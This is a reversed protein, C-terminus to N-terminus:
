GHIKRMKYLLLKKVTRRKFTELKPGEIGKEGWIVLHDLQLAVIIICSELKLNKM